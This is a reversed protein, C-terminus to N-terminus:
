VNLVFQLGERLAQLDHERGEAFYNFNIIPTDQPDASRLRVTGARNESQMQVISWFSANLPNRSSSFGPFYGEFVTVAAGFLFIHTDNNESVSSRYLMAAPAAGM